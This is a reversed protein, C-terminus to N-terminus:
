FSECEVLKFTIGVQDYTEWVGSIKIVHIKNRINKNTFLKFFKSEIQSKLGYHITKDISNTHVYKKLIIDELIILKYLIEDINSFVFKNGIIKNQVRMRFLMGITSINENSYLLKTFNGSVVNNKKSELFYINAEKTDYINNIVNM